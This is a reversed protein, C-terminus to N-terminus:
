LEIELGDWPVIVGDGLRAQLEHHESHHTLHTIFSRPAAIDGLMEVCEGISFHTPHVEPRLGDLIMADMNNLLGFTKDPIESCDPIYGLRRGDGDVRFGYILDKGHRVPLPTVLVEGVRVPAEQDTFHVRPVGGFSHSTKDVYDFKTRMQRMTEPSGYVPIHNQQLDSFRRVDDFGFIHDAHPHTLFVADIRKVGFSLVQDRFDPPTDFVLHQGAARVYLSCRRRRNKREGSTCVACSCGIMPIGHSTGTGLFVANMM